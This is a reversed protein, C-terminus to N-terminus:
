ILIAFSPFRVLQFDFQIPPSATWYSGSLDISSQAPM